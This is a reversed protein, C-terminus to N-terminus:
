WRHLAVSFQALSKMLFQWVDGHILSLREDCRSYRKTLNKKNYGHTKLEPRTM